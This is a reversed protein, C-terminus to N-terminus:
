FINLVFNKSIKRSFVKHLLTVLFKIFNVRFYQDGLLAFPKCKIGSFREGIRRVFNISVIIQFNYAHIINYTM